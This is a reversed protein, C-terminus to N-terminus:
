RKAAPCGFCKVCDMLDKVHHASIFTDDKVEEDTICVCCEPCNSFDYDEQYIKGTFKGLRPMNFEGM